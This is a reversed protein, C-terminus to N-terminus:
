GATADSIVAVCGGYPAGDGTKYDVIRRWRWYIDLERSRGNPFRSRRRRYYTKECAPRMSLIAQFHVFVPNAKERIGCNM